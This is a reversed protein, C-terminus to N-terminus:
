NQASTKFNSTTKTRKAKTAKAIITMNLFDNGMETDHLEEGRNEQLLKTTEPRVNLNKSWKANIKTYPTIYPGMKNQQM